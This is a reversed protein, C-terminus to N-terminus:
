FVIAGIYQSGSHTSTRSNTPVASEVNTSIKSYNAFIMPGGGVMGSPSVSSFLCM